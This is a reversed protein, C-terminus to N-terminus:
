GVSVALCAMKRKKPITFYFTSGKGEGSSEAWIKGGQKEVIRKCISLGLGSSDLDHRSADAKYFEDFIQSLEEGAMGVGTDKVSVIVFDDCNKSNITITGGGEYSYKVANSILNDIIEKGYKTIFKAEVRSAEGGSMLNKFQKLCHVISDPHIIDFLSLDIVEEKTYGLTKLWTRNVFLLHGSPSVSQILDNANDFFDQLRAQSVRLNEEAKKRETIDSIFGELAELEGDPSFVGSGKEWVWKVGGDLTNIRYFLEFPRKEEVSSQIETFVMEKDDPHILLSYSIGKLHSHEHGTLEVGGESSFIMTRDEDNQCRYAMGPLNKMLNSIAREREHLKTETEVLHRETKLQESVREVIQPLLDILGPDKVVYDRAGLKMMTVATNEDGNGTVVIFPINHHTRALEEIVHKGTMDPLSYDLLVLTRPSENIKAIAEAGNSATDTQFGHRNLTNIILRSLGENYEVVLIKEEVGASGENM